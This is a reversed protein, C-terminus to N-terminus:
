HSSIFDFSTAGCYCGSPITNNNTKQILKRKIVNYHPWLKGVHKRIYHSLLLWLATTTALPPQTETRDGPCWGGSVAGKLLCCRVSVFCGRGQEPERSSSRSQSGAGQERGTEAFDVLSSPFSTDALEPGVTSTPATRELCSPPRLQNKKRKGSLM